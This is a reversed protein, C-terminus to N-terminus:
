SILEELYTVIEDKTEIAKKVSSNEIVLLTTTKFRLDSVKTVLLNSEEAIYNTNLGEGLLVKYFKYADSESDYEDIYKDYLGEYNDDKAVVLVYYNSDLRNLIQGVLIDDYQIAVTENEPSKVEDEKKVLYTIGFFIIFIAVVAGVTGFMKTLNTVESTSIERQSMKNKKAM